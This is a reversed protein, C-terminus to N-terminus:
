SGSNWILLRKMHYIRKKNRDGEPQPNLAGLLKQSFKWVGYVGLGRIELAVLPREKVDGVGRRRVGLSQRSILTGGVRYKCACIEPLIKFNGNISEISKILSSTLPLYM